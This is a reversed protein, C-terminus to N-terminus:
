RAVRRSVISEVLLAIIIISGIASGQWFPSVGMLNLGNRIMVTILVGILTGIVTGRGGFIDGARCRGVDHLRRAVHLPAGPDLAAADADHVQDAVPLGIAHPRLLKRVVEGPDRPRRDVGGEGVIEIVDFLNLVSVGVVFRESLPHKPLVWGPNM